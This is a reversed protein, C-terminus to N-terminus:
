GATYGRSHIKELIKIDGIEKIEGSELLIVQDPKLIEFVKQYHSVIMLTLDPNEEKLLKLNSFIINFADIDLGSDTEDLMVLKPKLILLQLIEARKKEGGSFGENLNRDLFKEDIDLLKMKERLLKRFHFINLKDDPYKSNYALRLFEGFNVGPVEIPYQFALFLGLRAREFTKLETIDVGEFTLKGEFIKYVPNGMLVQLLSSKGSGNKGCIGVISGKSIEFNLSNLIKKDEVTATLNKIELQM